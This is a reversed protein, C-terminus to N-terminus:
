VCVSAGVGVGVSVSLIFACLDGTPLCKDCMKQIFTVPLTVLNEYYFEPLCVTENHFM